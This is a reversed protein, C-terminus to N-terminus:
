TFLFDQGSASSELTFSKKFGKVMGLHIEVSEKLPTLPLQSKEHIKMVTDATLQSQFPITIAQSEMRWGNQETQVYAVKNFEDVVYRVSPTSVSITVPLAGTEFCSVTLRSGNEFNVGIIGNCEFYGARKSQALNKSTLGFDVTFSQKGSLHYAYDLYHIFNTVLGFKSGSVTMDFVEGNVTKKIEAYIGMQRMCCNVFTNGAIKDFAKEAELYERESSFLIKEVVYNKVNYRGALNKLLDFRGKSNTAMICLDFDGSAPLEQTYSVEKKFTSTVADCREKSVKLSEASPDVVTINADVGAAKLGQLHRSGLQGAGVLLINM